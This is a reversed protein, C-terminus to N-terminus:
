LLHHLFLRVGLRGAGSGPIPRPAQGTHSLCMRRVRLQEAGPGPRLGDRPLQLCVRSTAAEPATLLSCTPGPSHLHGPLQKPCCPSPRPQQVSDQARAPASFGPDGPYSNHAAMGGWSTHHLMQPLTPVPTDGPIDSTHAYVVAKPASTHFSSSPLFHPHLPPSPCGCSAEGSGVPQEEEGRGRLPCLGPSGRRQGQSAQERQRDTVGRDRHQNLSLTPTKQNIFTSAKQQRVPWRASEKLRREEQWTVGEQNLGLGRLPELASSLLTRTGRHM